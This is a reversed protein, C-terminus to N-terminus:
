SFNSIQRYAQILNLAGTIRDGYRIKLLGRHVKLEIKLYAVFPDNENLNELQRNHNREKEFYSKYKTENKILLLDLVYYLNKIYIQFAQNSTSHFKESHLIPYEKRIKLDLIDNYTQILETNFPQCIAPSSYFFLLLCM